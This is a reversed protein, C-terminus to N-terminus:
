RTTIGFLDIQPTWTWHAMGRGLQIQIGVETQGTLNIVYQRQALASKDTDSIEQIVGHQDYATIAIGGTAGQFATLPGAIQLEIVLQQSGSTDLRGAVYPSEPQEASDGELHLAKQGNVETLTGKGGISLQGLSDGSFSGAKAVSLIPFDLGSQLSSDFSVRLTKGMIQSWDGATGTASRGQDESTDPFSWTVAAPNGEVTGKLRALLEAAPQNTAVRLSAWPLVPVTASNQSTNKCWNAIGGDADPGRMELPPLGRVLTSSLSTVYNRMIDVDTLVGIQTSLRIMPNAGPTIELGDVRLTSGCWYIVNDGSTVADYTLSKGTNSLQLRNVKDWLPILTVKCRGNEAGFTLGIPTKVEGISPAGVASNQPTVQTVTPTATWDGALGSCPDVEAPDIPGKGGVVAGTAGGGGVTPTLTDGATGGAGPGEAYGGIGETSQHRGLLLPDESVCGTGAVVLLISSILSNPKM